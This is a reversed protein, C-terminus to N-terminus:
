VSEVIKAKRLENFFTYHKKTSVKYNFFRFIWKNKLFVVGDHKKFFLKRAEIYQQLDGGGEQKLVFEKFDPDDSLNHINVSSDNNPDPTIQDPYDFPEENEGSIVVVRTARRLLYIIPDSLFQIYWQNLKQGLALQLRDLPTLYPIIVTDLDVGDLLKDLGSVHDEHFHSLVLLDIRKLSKKFNNIANNLNKFNQKDAGCDYVVVTGNINASYFLGQGVNHFKFKVPYM